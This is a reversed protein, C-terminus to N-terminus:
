ALLFITHYMFYWFAQKPKPVARIRCILGQGAVYMARM